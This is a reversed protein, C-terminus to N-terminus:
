VTHDKTVSKWKADDPTSKGWYFLFGGVSCCEGDSSSSSNRFEIHAQGANTFLKIRYLQDYEQRSRGDKIEGIFVGEEATVTHGLLADVGVIRYFWSESSCDGDAMYVFRGADTDFAIYHQKECDILIGYITKGVLRQMPTRMKPSVVVRM